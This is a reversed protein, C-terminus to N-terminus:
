GFFFMKVESLVQNTDFENKKIGQISNLRYFIIYQPVTIFDSSSEM